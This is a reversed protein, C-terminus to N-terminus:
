ASQDTQPLIDRTFVQLPRYKITNQKELFRRQNEGWVFGSFSRVGYHNRLEQALVHFLPQHVSFFIHLHM